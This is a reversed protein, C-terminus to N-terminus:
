AQGALPAIGDLLRELGFRFAADGTSADAFDDVDASLAPYEDAPLSALAGRLRRRQADDDVAVNFAAHGFTFLFLSRYAFAADRHSFGADLLISVARDSVRLAAPGLVPGSERILVGSPHRELARRIGDMLSSLQERWTEGVPEIRADAVAADAMADLLEDKTRFYGYLTMTPIGVHGALRRMSVAARRDADALELAALAIAERTLEPRRTRRSTTGARDTTM